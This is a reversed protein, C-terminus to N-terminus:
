RDRVATPLSGARELVLELNQFFVTCLWGLSSVLRVWGWRPWRRGTGTHCSDLAESNWHQAVLSSIVVPM